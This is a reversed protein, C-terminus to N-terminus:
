GGATARGTTSEPGSEVDSTPAVEAIHLQQGHIVRLLFAKAELTLSFLTPVLILTFVTSFVLGGLMVSGLGQYLESGAGPSLVLPLLGFLGIMATMFIPRIRTRVSELIAQRHTMQDERIHVLAQEVILIPNNVVTGVLIIFGLMTLVDLPQVAPWVYWNLLRLGIFGGVAGLPVSLMIVFPYLWSEFLAAMVLYTIIIALLLNWRLAQWTVRLKDATGSLSIQYIGGELQGTDELSGIIQQRIRDMADELPIEPPPTVAITIARQRERRNVQEPGSSLKIDAVASLSVLEGHPTAIALAGLDQTRTAFQEEGMITLDIKDGGLYYDTAYAGDVLADVAYGLDEATVGMDAAQEWRPVAHVEPSSLDLSPIPRAQARPVVAMVQGLVQGGLRTLKTVDPGTIEVDITRGGALGQEFLSVQFAVMMTGPIKTGVSRVLDVLRGGQLPDDSRVGLFLTRDRCVYFFDAIAPYKLQSLDTDHDVNWYPRLENEIVGGMKQMQELNYGPPPLMLGIVLNRNGNPLYEVKPLLLYSLFVSGFVFVGVTALRLPISRLLFANIEVVMQVFARGILDLPALITRGIWAILGQSMEAFQGQGKAAAKTHGGLPLVDGESEERLGGMIWNAATPVLFLSALLSLALASSTALAIDRFLQGAEDKVFLVPVFVALNALTSAIVAGWVDKTGRVTAAIAGDGSQHHRYINELVVIFNDVLMGVAFAIGALSLVNLTRGLASMVLFMGIISVSISLFVVVTSRFSRLFLMLVIFTLIGGEIINDWVLGISSHIYETEDYVQILELGRPALVEANLKAMTEQLGRMVDLVNSGTEREANIAIVSSGFRRVMGTPKKYGLKVEAVDRVYVPSGDRRAVIVNAVQEPSRFQGLTRVVWRRKGEWFDGGSTDKNQTRLAHRVDTITLQRAALRHPDVIVQLEDERGGVVNSNSVGPVREFRAEIIDEAFRRLKTVDNDPPLLERLRPQREVAERLRYMRLGDNRAARVPDVAAKLEPHKEVFADLDAPKPTRVNLIFWAIFRDASSNTIVPEDANIPYERVQQLRTNVLLLAESMDADVDFELTIRGLSDMSESSMKRVGEVAQLQEEQPLIIQNEVEQPSAGPWRTEIKLMPRQVEPTLQMPMTFLAITGFLAVLIVGVSVTVPRRVFGEIFNM